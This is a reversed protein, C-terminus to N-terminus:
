ALPLLGIVPCEEEPTGPVSGIMLTRGATLCNRVMVSGIDRRVTM